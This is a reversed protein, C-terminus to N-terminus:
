LTLPLRVEALFGTPELPRCALRAAEGYLSRLRAEVNHLGVGLGPPKPAVEPAGTDAVELVLEEGARRARIEVAVPRETRAVAYKVANEVLPQLILHPVMAGAVEADIRQEFRLRDGFRVREIELYADQTALERSLAVLEGSAPDGARDLFRRVAAIMERARGFQRDLILAYLANLTNFLFHPNVQLRLMANRANLAGERIEAAANLRAIERRRADILLYMAAWGIFLPAVSNLEFGCIWGTLYPWGCCGSDGRLAFSAFLSIGCTCIGLVCLGFVVLYLMQVRSIAARQLLRAGVVFWIAGVIAQGGYDCLSKWWHRGDVTDMMFGAFFFAAWVGLAGISLLRRLSADTMEGSEAYRIPGPLAEDICELPAERPALAARM